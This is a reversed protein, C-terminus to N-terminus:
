VIDNILRKHRHYHKEIFARSAGEVTRRWTQLLSYHFVCVMHPLLLISMNMVLQLPFPPSHHSVKQITGLLSRNRVDRARLPRLLATRRTVAPPLLSRREVVASAGSDDDRRFPRSKKLRTTLSLHKKRTSEESGLEAFKRLLEDSSKKTVHQVKADADADANATVVVIATDM